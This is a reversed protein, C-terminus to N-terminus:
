RRWRLLRATTLFYITSRYRVVDVLSEGFRMVLTRTLRGQQDFILIRGPHIIWLEDGFLAIGRARSVAGRARARLYNGFTDYVLVADHGRDAVLLEGNSGIALSFPEILAGAGDEFGGIVQQARRNQEWKLVVNRAADLVVMEDAPTLAVAVPRGDSPPQTADRDSGYSPRPDTASRSVPVVELLQLSKSFRQVRGNGADAVVLTLGNTPDVSAPDDFQGPATGSGGLVDTVAGEPTLRVVVDKGIDAVYLYGSPDVALDRATDFLALEQVDARTVFTMTRGPQAQAGSVLGVLLGIAM